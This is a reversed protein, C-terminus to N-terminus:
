TKLFKAEQHNILSRLKLSNKFMVKLRSGALLIHLYDLEQNQNTQAIQKGAIFMKKLSNTMLDFDRPVM